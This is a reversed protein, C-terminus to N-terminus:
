KLYIISFQQQLPDLQEKLKQILSSGYVQYFESFNRNREQLSQQPFLEDQLNTLRELESKLKRKQAKLLRKELHQLGNIQKQEQAAVAGVFSQDTKEALTYLDKFQQQLQEKQTSFDINIESIEKTRKTRLDSPKLFLDEINVQLNELKKEQKESVLLASNRLLLIPLPVQQSKFYSKLELWYALEGGGGIYCLNPLIVEQYLPRMIVNPSFREPHKELLELFDEESFRLDTEHVFYTDEEKIIRKRIEKEVYFLNIERANVQAKYGLEDLKEATQSVKEASTQQLLEAKVYPAFLTKLAKDNGDLIVLGQNGFLENALFRTADTLNSNQLYAEEFLSKLEKASDSNNLLNEFDEAIAKLGENNFEGVMGTQQSEWQIKKDEFNFYNIEEFDHDESAMWYVPVFHHEPYKEALQETLNITSIIKYLFYLPGTFLNLQHGTTITFTNEKRLLVINAMTEESLKFDEYQHTLADGLINRHSSQFSQKKEHLQEEFNEIKPFHQYFPKLTEKEDLYDLILTSFFNTDRYSICDDMSTFNLFFLSVNLM